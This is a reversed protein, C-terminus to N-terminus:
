RRPRSRAPGPRGSRVDAAGAVGEAEIPIVLTAGVRRPEGLAEGPALLGCARELRGRVHRALRDQRLAEERDIRPKSRM